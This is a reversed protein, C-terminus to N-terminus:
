ASVGGGLRLPAALARYDNIRNVATSLRQWTEEDLSRRKLFDAGIISVILSEHDLNGLVQRADFRQRLPKFSHETGVRDPMVDAFTLGIAGLVDDTECGAFCHLLIKGCDDRIALSPTRDDHAPCRAVWRNTATETVKELRDLLNTASGM